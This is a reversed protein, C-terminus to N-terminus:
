YNLTRAPAAYKGRNNIQNHDGVPAIFIGSEALDFADQLMNGYNRLLWQWCDLLSGAAAVNGKCYVAYTVHNTM